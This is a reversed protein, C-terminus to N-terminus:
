KKNIIDEVISNIDILEIKYLLISNPPIIGIGKKGFALNSPILVERVGGIKMGRIGEHLGNIIPGVGLQFSFHKKCYTSDFEKNEFFGTYKITVMHGYRAGIGYGIKLDNIKIKKNTCGNTNPFLKCFKEKNMNRQCSLCSANLAKCCIKIDKVCEGNICKSKADCRIADCPDYLQRSKIINKYKNYVFFLVIIITIIILKM